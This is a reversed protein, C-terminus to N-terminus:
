THVKEHRPGLVGHGDNRVTVKVKSVSVNCVCFSVDRLCLADSCKGFELDDFHIQNREVLYM